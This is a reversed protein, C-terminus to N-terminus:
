YGRELIIRNPLEKGRAAANLVTALEAYRRKESDPTGQAGGRHPSMVVNDLEHFPLSSPPHHSRQSKDAPYDYWVDIGAALLQGSKLANYLAKEQVIPGRGVNVLLAPSRLLSLEQAGILGRTEATLPAAIILVHSRALVQHLADPGYVEVEDEETPIVNSRRRLALVEMGLARCYRAIRRGIAGFGLICATRGELTVIPPLEYRLTWDHRRFARDIPVIFKAAALLLALATEATAAANYHLNHISVHPFEAMLEATEEPLGAWPIILARLNPSAELEERRPRGAVLIQYRPPNPVEAGYTVSIGTDLRQEFYARYQEKPPHSIHVHLTM